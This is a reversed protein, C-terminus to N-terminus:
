METILRTSNMLQAQMCRPLGGWSGCLQFSIAGAIRRAGQHRRCCSRESATDQAGAGFDSLRTPVQVQTEYLRNAHCSPVVKSPEGSHDVHHLRHSCRVDLEVSVFTEEEEGAHPLVVMSFGHGDGHLQFDQGFISELALIEDKAEEAGDAKRRKAKKKKGM